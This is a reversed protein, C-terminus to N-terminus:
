DNDSRSIENWGSGNWILTLRDATSNMTFDGSLGINGTNDKLVVNRANSAIRLILLQGICPNTPTITNLDDTAAASETDVTVPMISASYAVTIAGSNITITPSNGTFGVNTQDIYLGTTYSISYNSSSANLCKNGAIYSDAASSSCVIGITGGTVYNNTVISSIGVDIGRDAPNIIKNNRCTTRTGNSIGRYKSNIILNGQITADNASSYAVISAEPYIASGCNYFINNSCIGYPGIVTSGSNEITNGDFIVRTGTLNNSNSEQTLNKITNGTISIDFQTAGSSEIKIGQLATDFTNGTIAIGQSYLELVICTYRPNTFFNGTISINKVPTTDDSFQGTRVMHADSGWNTGDFHNGTVVWNSSRITVANANSVTGSSYFRCNAVRGGIAANPITWVAFKRFNTFNCKDINANVGTVYVGGVDNLFSQNSANGDFTLGSLGANNTLTIWNTTANSKWKLTGEGFLTQDTISFSNLLYAGYPVYVNKGTALANIFAATDDTVGDGVAGFDKVSVTRRLAEQVTTAVAGTGAPQYSVLDASVRDTAVPASYVVSGNKNMVRISYDSNVYLRAPTGSNSPYGGLTRIPQAASITLAADWYVNIPNVQPDLNAQGIWVYGDELPQGQSNQFVPFPVQVSLASM